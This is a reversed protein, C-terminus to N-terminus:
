RLQCGLLGPIEIDPRVKANAIATSAISSFFLSVMQWFSVLVDFRIWDFVKGMEGILQASLVSIGAVAASNWQEFPIKHATNELFTLGAAGAVGITNVAAGGAAAAAHFGEQGFTSAMHFGAEAAVAAHSAAGGAAAAASALMPTTAQWAQAAYTPAAAAADRVAGLSSVLGESAVGGLNGATERARDLANGAQDVGSSALDAARRAASSAADM